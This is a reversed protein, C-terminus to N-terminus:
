SQTVKEWFKKIDRLCINGVSKALKQYSKDTKWSFILIVFFDFFYKKKSFFIYKNKKKSNKTKQCKRANKLLYFFSSFKQTKKRCFFNVYHKSSFNQCSFNILKLSFQKAAKLLSNRRSFIKKVKKLNMDINQVLKFFFFSFIQFFIGFIKLKQFKM